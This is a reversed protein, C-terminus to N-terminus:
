PRNNEGGPERVEGEAPCEEERSKKRIGGVSTVKKLHHLVIPLSSASGCYLNEGEGKGQQRGGTQRAQRTSGSFYCRLGTGRNDM